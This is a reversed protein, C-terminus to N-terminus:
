VTKALFFLHRRLLELAAMAFMQKNKIRDDFSFRYTKAVSVGDGALGICVMGVPKEKTGGGPGAIGTTSIAVDAGSKLRAGQAMELATQEHVAGFELITTHQVNLINIKADNSYTIGSFLFYESSGAVDTVMNSILGGTCSEAIALTKKQLTLLRGVEQAITLGTQSVVKNELQAIVWLKAKAIGFVSKKKDQFSSYSIIKVEIVPFDARFGLRMEPFKEKFGKLLMGVKSEPLGFVTIREILIDDDLHFKNALVKKVQKEVMLKMESPVGPLFFFLCQNLTIYFGPATGNHNIMMTSSSPLMAQKENDKTLQFERKLFYSKMSELADKNLELRDNAAKACALATLDDQTPGLGGTVLCIDALLSIDSISNAITDVDDGVATIKKVEIGLEKLANCLFASNTDVIDGLLVEDGTSLIHAIM